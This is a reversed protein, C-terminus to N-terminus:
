DVVLEGLDVHAQVLHVALRGELVNRNTTVNDARAWKCLTCKYVWWNASEREAVFTRAMWDRNREAYVQESV